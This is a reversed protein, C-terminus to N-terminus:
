RSTSKLPTFGCIALFASTGGLVISSYVQFVSKIQPLLIKFTKVGLVSNPTKWGRSPKPLHSRFSLAKKSSIKYSKRINLKSNPFFLIKEFNAEQTVHCPWIQPASMMFFHWFKVFIGM